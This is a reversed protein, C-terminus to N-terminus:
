QCLGCQEIKLIIVAIKWTHLHKPNKSYQQFKTEWLFGAALFGTVVSLLDSSSDNLIDSESLSESKPPLFFFFAGAALFGGAFYTVSYLLLQNSNLFIFFKLFFGTIGLTKLVKQFPVNNNFFDKKMFYLTLINNEM